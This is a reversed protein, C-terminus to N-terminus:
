PWLTLSVSPISENLPRNEPHVVNLTIRRWEYAILPVPAIFPDGDNYTDSYFVAVAGGLRLRETPKWLLGGGAHVATNRGSDRYVSGDLFWDFKEGPMRYRLGIGPNVENDRGSSKAEERDVHDSHGYVNIGLEGQAACPGACAAL